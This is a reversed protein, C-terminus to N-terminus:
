EQDSSHLLDSWEVTYNGGYWVVAANPICHETSSVDCLGENAFAIRGTGGTKAKFHLTMIRGSGKAGETVPGAAGVILGGHREVVAYTVTGAREFYDGPSYGMYAITDRDFTLDFAAGLVGVSLDNATVTLDLYRGVSVGSLSVTEPGPASQDPTFAIGKAAPESRCGAAALMGVLLLAGVPAATGRRM